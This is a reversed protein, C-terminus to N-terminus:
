KISQRLRSLTPDRDAADLTYHNEILMDAECGLTLAQFSTRIWGHPLAAAIAIHLIGVIPFYVSPSMNQGHNGMIPNWEGTDVRAMATRTQQWDAVFSGQVAFEMATDRKTWGGCGVSLVVLALAALLRMGVDDDTKSPTPTASPTAM